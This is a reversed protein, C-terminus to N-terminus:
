SDRPIGLFGVQENGLFIGGPIHFGGWEWPIWRSDVQFENRRINVNPHYMCWDDNWTSERPIGPFGQSDVLFQHPLTFVERLPGFSADPVM